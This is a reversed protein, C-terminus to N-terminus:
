ANTPKVPYQTEYIKPNNVNVDRVRHEWAEELLPPTFTEEGVNNTHHRLDMGAQKLECLPNLRQDDLGNM